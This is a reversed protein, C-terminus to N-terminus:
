YSAYLHLLAAADIHLWKLGDLRSWGMHHLVKLAKSRLISFQWAWHTLQWVWCFQTEKQRHYTSTIGRTYSRIEPKKLRYPLFLWSRVFGWSFDLHRYLSNGYWSCSCIFLLWLLLSVKNRSIKMNWSSFEINWLCPITKCNKCVAFSFFQWEIKKWHQLQPWTWAWYCWTNMLPVLLVVLTLQYGKISSFSYIFVKSESPCRSKKCLNRLTRIMEAVYVQLCFWIKCFYILLEASNSLQLSKM